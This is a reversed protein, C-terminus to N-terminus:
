NKRWASPSIGEITKFRDSFTSLDSFGCEEAIASLTKDSSLMLQKAYEIRRTNIVDAFTAGFEVKMMRAFYTRNTGLAAIADKSTIGPRLFVHQEDLMQRMRIAMRRSQNVYEVVDKIEVTGANPESQDSSAEAVKPQPSLVAPEEDQEEGQDTIYPRLSFGRALLVYIFTILFSFTLYYVWSHLPSSVFYTSDHASAYIAFVICLLWWWTFYRVKPSLSIGYQRLVAVTPLIRCLVTIGQILIVVDATNLSLAVHGAHLVSVTWWSYTWDDALQADLHVSLCPVAFLLMSLVLVVVTSRNWKAVMQESFFIYALPIIAVSSLQQVAHLWTPIDGVHWRYDVILINLFVSVGCGLFFAVDRMKGERGRVFCAWLLAAMAPIFILYIM